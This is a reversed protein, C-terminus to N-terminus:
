LKDLKDLKDQAHVVLVAINLRIRDSLTVGPLVKRLLTFCEM